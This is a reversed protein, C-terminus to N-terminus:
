ESSDWVSGGTRRFEGTDGCEPCRMIRVSEDEIEGSILPLTECDLNCKDCYANPISGDNEVHQNLFIM